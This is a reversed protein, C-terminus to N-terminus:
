DEDRIEKWGDEDHIEIKLNEAQMQEDVQKEIFKEVDQYNAEAAAAKLRLWKKFEPRQTLRKFAVRKNQTQSREEEACAVAGSEPHTIRIATAVKNRHQGGKGSARYAQVQFDKKTLSFLLKRQKAM